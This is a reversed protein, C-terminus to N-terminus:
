SVTLSQILKAVPAALGIQHDAGPKYWLTTDSDAVECHIQELRVAIPQIDLDYHSFSHRLTDWRDTESPNAKLRDLCWNGLDEDSKLEPLSWLGGWIGSAPRRELYM